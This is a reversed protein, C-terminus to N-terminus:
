FGPLATACLVDSCTHGSRCGLICFGLRPDSDLCSDLTEVLQCLSDGQGFEPEPKESDGKHSSRLRSRYVDTSVQCLIYGGGGWM